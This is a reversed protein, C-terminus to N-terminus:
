IFCFNALELRMTMCVAIGPTSFMDRRVGYDLAQGGIRAEIPTHRAYPQFRRKPEIEKETEQARRSGSLLDM